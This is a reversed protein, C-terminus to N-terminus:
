QVKFQEIIRLLDEANIKLSESSASFEESLAANQSVVEEIQSIAINIQDVGASQEHTTESIQNIKQVLDRMMDVINTISEATKNVLEIGQQTSEVNQGIIDRITKSSESTKHALNRVENAVVAFGRGAEGARAAEVAANLALLNTQFSIDNIVNTIADIRKSSNDIQNMTNKVNEVLEKNALLVQNFSKMSKKLQTANDNNSKVVASFEELTASTETLSAAQQNTRSALETSGSALEEASSTIEVSAAQVTKVLGGLQDISQNLSNSLEGLEDGRSLVVQHTLDGTGLAQSVSAIRKIPNSIGRASFQAIVAVFVSIVVLILLLINRLRVALSVAESRDVKTVCAWKFGFISLPEYVLLVQNGVLDKGIEHGEVGNIAKEIYDTRVHAGLVYEGNGMTVLDNRFSIEGNAEGVLYSENTARMGTQDQMIDNIQRPSVEVAVIGIMNGDSNFFPSAIFGTFANDNPLYHEFDIAETKKTEKVKRWLQALTSDKFEGYALNTGLDKKRKSSFMVHGHATCIIFIDLVEFQDQIELMKPSIEKWIRDYEETDVPFAEEAKVEHKDHYNKLINFRSSLIETRTMFEISKQYEEAWSEVQHVKSKMSVELRDFSDKEMQHSVIVSMIIIGLLLPIVGIAIFAASLKHTLKLSRLM